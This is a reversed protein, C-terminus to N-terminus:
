KKSMKQADTAPKLSLVGKAASFRYPKGPHSDKLFANLDKTLRDLDLPAPRGLPIERPIAGPKDAEMLYHHLRPAAAAFWQVVSEDPEKGLVHISFMLDELEAIMVALDAIYDQLSDDLGDNHRFYLLFRRDECWFFDIGYSPYAELFRALRTMVAPHIEARHDIAIAELRNRAADAAETFKALPDWNPNEVKRLVLGCKHIPLGQNTFEREAKHLHARTERIVAMLESPRFAPLTM